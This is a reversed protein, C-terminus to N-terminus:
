FNMDKIQTQVNPQSEKRCQVNSWPTELIFQLDNDRTLTGSRNVLTKRSNEKNSRLTM